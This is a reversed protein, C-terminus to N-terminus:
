LGVFVLAYGALQFNTNSETFFVVDNNVRVPFRDVRFVQGLEQCLKLLFGSQRVATKVVQSVKTGRNHNPLVHIDLYGLLNQPVLIDLGCEIDIGM